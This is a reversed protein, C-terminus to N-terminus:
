DPLLLLDDAEVVFFYLPERRRHFRLNERQEVGADLIAIDDDDGVVRFTKERFRERLGENPAGMFRAHIDDDIRPRLMAVVVSATVVQRRVPLFRPRQ